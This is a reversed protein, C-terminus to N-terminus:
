IYLPKGPSLAMIKDNLGEQAAIRSLERLPTGLPEDSLDFTGYHMPIMYRAHLDKLGTLAEEPSQHILHMFWMPEYAGIGLIAYDFSGYLQQLQQYHGDYGGDGGFLIRKGNAEIVFGGWLRKNTDFVGRKAWHQSPVFTISLPQHDTNFQQYWGATEIHTSYTIGHILKEMGLGSLYKMAPNNAALQKLSAKDCHDRHDHSLLLYDLKRIRGPNLPLASKRHYFPIDGFVPDTLLRIGGIRIYFTAHGIWVIVDEEGDLWTDDKYVELQWQDAKKEEGFPNTKMKWRLVEVFNAAYPHSLNMFRGNQDVPTGKWDADKIITKLLPNSRWTIAM